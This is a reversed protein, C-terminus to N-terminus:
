PCQSYTQYTKLTYGCRISYSKKPDIMTMIYKKIGDSAGLFHLCKEPFRKSQRQITDVAWLQMPDNKMGKPKRNKTKKRKKKVKGNRDIRFPIVRMKDKDRAIIRGITSVSPLKLQHEKCFPQLLVYLKDKGMNPYEERLSRIREIITKPTEWERMKHPRTSKPNLSLVDNNSRKFIEKYRYITRRSVRYAEKTAELGYKDFFQIIQLRKNAEKTRMELNYCLKRFKEYGKIGNFLYDRQM